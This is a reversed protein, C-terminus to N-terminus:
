QRDNDTRTVKYHTKALFIGSLVHAGLNELQDSYTAWTIGRTIVDDFTVINKGKFWIEDFEIISVKRIEKELKRNEHIALRGGIVKVHDYGNIAGTLECVRECFAKYRLENKESTSAPVPVFVIDKCGDGYQKKLSAATMQAVAEFSRGDKFDYVMQRDAVEKEGVNRIRKPFYKCFWTQPKELQKKLHNDMHTM